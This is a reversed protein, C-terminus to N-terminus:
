GGSSDKDQDQESRQVPQNDRQQKQRWSNFLGLALLGLIIGVIGGCGQNLDEM